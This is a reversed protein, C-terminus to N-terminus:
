RMCIRLIKDISKDKNIMKTIYNFNNKIFGKSIKNRPNKLISTWDLRDTLTGKADLIMKMLEKDKYEEPTLELERSNMLDFAIDIYRPNQFRKFTFLKSSIFSLRKVLDEDIDQYVCIFSYCMSYKEKKHFNFSKLIKNGENTDSIARLIIDEKTQPEISFRKWESFTFEWNKSKVKQVFEEETMM